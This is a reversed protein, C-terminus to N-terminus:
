SPLLDVCSISPLGSIRLPTCRARSGIRGRALSLRPLCATRGAVSVPPLAFWSMMTRGKTNKHKQRLKALLAEPRRFNTRELDDVAKVFDVLGQEAALDLIGLTGTVRLGKSEAAIVAKRDDMLLLDAALSIALQIAAREGDDINGLSPDESRSEVDGTELWIPPKAMWQRIVPPAKSSDLETRVARPIIVREFLTPILDIRGILILYNIPGTDAVVLRV